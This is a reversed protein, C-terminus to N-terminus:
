REQRWSRGAVVDLTAWAVSGAAMAFVLALPAAVIGGGDAGAAALAGPPSADRATGRPPEVAPPLLPQLVVALAALARAHERCSESRGVVLRRQVEEVPLAELYRLLEHRRRTRAANARARRGYRTSRTRWPAVSPPQM